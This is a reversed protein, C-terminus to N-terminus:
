LLPDLRSKAFPYRSVFYYNTPLLGQKFYLPTLFIVSIKDKGASPSSNSSLLIAAVIAPKGIYQYPM